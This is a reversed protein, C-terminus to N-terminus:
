ALHPQGVGVRRVQTRQHLAAHRHDRVLHLVGEDVATRLRLEERVAEAARGLPRRNLQNRVAHQATAEQAVAPEALRLRLGGRGLHRRGGALVEGHDGLGHAGVAM